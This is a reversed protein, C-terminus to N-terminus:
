PRSRHQSQAGAQYKYGISVLLHALRANAQCPYSDFIYRTVQVVADFAPPLGSECHLLHRLDRYLFQSRPQGVAPDFNEVHAALALELGGMDRARVPMREVTELRGQGVEVPVRRDRHMAFASIATEDGAAQQLTGPVVIHYIYDAPEVGPLLGVQRACA